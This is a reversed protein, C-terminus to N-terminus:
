LVPWVHTRVMRWATFVPSQFGTNPVLILQGAVQIVHRSCTQATRDGFAM